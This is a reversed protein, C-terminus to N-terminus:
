NTQRFGQAALSASLAEGHARDRTELLLVVASYGPPCDPPLRDHEISVVNSRACAVAALLAALSGPRDTVLFRLRILRGSRFLGRETIQALFNVDINGGSLVLVAPFKKPPRKYLLAALPAAGAGELTTKMEELAYLIAAAIEEEDVTVADDVYRKAAEFTRESMCSVAIGDAITHVEPSAVPKGNRLSPVLSSAGAAQVAVIEVSPDKEKVAAGIGALLGGGGVPVYLTGPPGSGEVIELGLTGQGAIVMSDDFPHVVTLGSEGALALAHRSAEEFTEGQLIIRTNGGGEREAAAAKSVPAWVPMVLTAPIGAARAARAVGRAHNGASAAIVGRVDSPDLSLIKNAAGRIKFSGSVQLNELKSLIRGGFRDSLPDEEVLPTSYALRYVRERAALVDKRGFDM